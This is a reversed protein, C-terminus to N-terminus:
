HGTSSVLAQVFKAPQELHVIHGADPTITVTARSIAQQMQQAIATFKPDLSGVLLSTPLTMQSLQEWLSPQVGTGMGRLSNALGIPNNQLRQQHLRLRVDEPLNKQSAFLPLAEWEEVFAPIGIEEIRHALREDSQRRAERESYDSLGPSASELTLRKLLQPYHTAFYLALRGGMSYGVLHIPEGIIQQLLTSLDEATYEMHYRLLDSPSDTKGHGLLDIAIALYDAPLLNMIPQWNETCGTFGHLFVIPKGSGQM